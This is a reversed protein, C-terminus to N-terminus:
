YLNFFLDGLEDIIMNDINLFSERYETLMKAYTTGGHKGFTHDIYENTNAFSSAETDNRSETSTGSATTDTIGANTLYQNNEIGTLGGQPTDSNRDTVKSTDSNTRTSGSGLTRSNNGGDSGNHETKVDVDYLPNFELQASSYMQNYYPMIENMKNNLWLKWLGVTEACIERTYFHRLIKKNLPLRYAEDFIPYTEFIQPAATEVIDDVEDYGQSEDYGALSECIFRVQTTYKSM